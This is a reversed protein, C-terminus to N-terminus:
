EEIPGYLDTGPAAPDDSRYFDHAAATLEDRTIAGDGDQDLAHFVRRSTEAHLGYAGHFNCFEDVDIRGSDDTDFLSYLRDVLGAVEAAYRDESALVDDWYALWEQLDVGGDADADASRRVADWRVVYAQRLRALAPTDDAVGHLVRLNELVREFDRVGVVGDDDVDYVRFYRTLKRTQLASLM